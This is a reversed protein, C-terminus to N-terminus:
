ASPKLPRSFLFAEDSAPQAAIRLFPPLWHCGSFIVPHWRLLSLVLLYLFRSALEKIRGEMKLDYKLAM